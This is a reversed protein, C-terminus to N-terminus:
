CQRVKHAADQRARDLWSHWSGHRGIGPPLFALSGGKGFDEAGDRDPVTAGAPEAPEEGEDAGAIQHGHDPKADLRLHEGVINFQEFFKIGLIKVHLRIIHVRIFLLLKM